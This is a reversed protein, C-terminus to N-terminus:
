VRTAPHPPSIRATAAGRSRDPDPHLCICLAKSSPCLSLTSIGYRTSAAKTPRVAWSASRWATSATTFSSKATPAPRRTCSATLRTACATSSARDATHSNVPSAVVIFRCDGALTEGYSYRAENQRKFKFPPGEYFCNLADDAGTAIRYPKAPRVAVSNVPRSHGPLEGVTTGTDLM